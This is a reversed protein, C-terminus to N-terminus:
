CRLPHSIADLLRVFVAQWPNWALLRYIIRRSTRVIQAPINIFANRFTSFDMRLLAQKQEEHQERWRAHVPIKFANLAVDRARLM